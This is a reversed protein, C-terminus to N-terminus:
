ARLITAYREAAQPPATLVVTSALWRALWGRSPLTKIAKPDAYDWDAIVRDKHLRDLADEFRRRSREPRRPDPTFGVAQLLGDVRRRVVGPGRQANIRFHFAVYKGLRKELQERYPHYALVRRDLWALQRLGQDWLAWTWSGPLVEAELFVPEGNPGPRQIRKMVVLLRDEVLPRAPGRDARPVFQGDLRVWLRHIQELAAGIAVRDETRHGHSWNSPERRYRKRKIGRADLIEDATIWVTTGPGPSSAVWAGLSILLVDSALDYLRRVQGWLADLMSEAPDRDGDEGRLSVRVQAQGNRLAHIYTPVTRRGSDTWGHGLPAQHIANVVTLVAVDSPVLLGGDDSSTVLGLARSPRSRRAPQRGPGTAPPGSEPRNAPLDASRREPALM